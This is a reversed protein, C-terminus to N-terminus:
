CWKNNEEYSYLKLINNILTKAMKESAYSKWNELYAMQRTPSRVRILTNM